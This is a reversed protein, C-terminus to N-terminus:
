PATRRSISMPPIAAASPWRGVLIGDVSYSEPPSISAFIEFGQEQLFKECAAHLEVTHTSIFCYSIRGASLNKKAGKLMELEFGQIDSHLIAIHELKQAAVLDDVGVVPQGDDAVGSKEGVWAQTFAAFALGNAAFNKKGFELNQEVPEVLYARANPVEKCFWMSYYGWYAGLEIMASGPPIQRLVEQFIREEQPEHVGRNKKLLLASDKGYYSGLLVKLGNHMIQFDGHIEGAEPVRKIYANDPCALVQKTRYGWNECCNKSFRKMIQFTLAPSIAFLARYVRDRLWQVFRARKKPSSNMM